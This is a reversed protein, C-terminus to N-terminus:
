IKNVIYKAREIVDKLSDTNKTYFDRDFIRDSYFGNQNQFYVSCLSCVNYVKNEFDNYEALFIIDKLGDSNIDTFSVARVRIFNYDYIMPNFYQLIEGRSNVIYLMVNNLGGMNYTGSVFRVNGWNEFSVWFSQEDIIKFGNKVLENLTKSTYLFIKSKKDKVYSSVMDITRNMDYKNLIDTISKNKYFGSKNQFLVDAIPFPAAGYLGAGTACKSIITIDRLGDNNLDKFSIAKIVINSWNNFELNYTSYLINKNKHALFVAVKGSKHYAVIFKVAGFNEFSTDFSQKEDIIFDNKLIDNSNKVQNFDIYFEDSNTIAYSNIQFSFMTLFVILSFLFYKVIQATFKSNIM